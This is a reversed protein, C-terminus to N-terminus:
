LLIVYSTEWGFESLFTCSIIFTGTVIIFVMFLWLLYSNSSIIDSVYHYLISVRGIVLDSFKGPSILGLFLNNQNRSQRIINGYGRAQLLEAAHICIQVIIKTCNCICDCTNVIM